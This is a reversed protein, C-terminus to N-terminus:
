PATPGCDTLEGLDTDYDCYQDPDGTFRIIVEDNASDLEFSAAQGEYTGTLSATGDPGPIFSGNEITVDGLQAKFGIIVAFPELGRILDVHFGVSTLEVHCGLGDDFWPNDGTTPDPESCVFSVDPPREPPICEPFRIISVRVTNTAAGPANLGIVTLTGAGIVPKSEEEVPGEMIRWDVLAVTGEYFGRELSFVRSDPVDEIGYLDEDLGQYVRLLFVRETDDELEDTESGLVIMKWEFTSWLVRKPVTPDDLMERPPLDALDPLSAKRQTIEPHLAVRGDMYRLIGHVGLGARGWWAPFGWLQWNLVMNGNLSCEPLAVKVSEGSGGSGATGGIGATGGTADGGGGGCGAGVMASAIVLALLSARQVIWSRM